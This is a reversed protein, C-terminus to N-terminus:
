HGGASSAAPRGLAGPKRRVEQGGQGVQLRVGTGAARRGGVRRGAAPLEGVAMGARHPFGVRLPLEQAAMRVRREQPRDVNFHDATGVLVYDKSRGYLFYFSSLRFPRVFGEGDAPSPERPARTLVTDALPEKGGAAGAESSAALGTKALQGSSDVGLRRLADKKLVAIGKHFYRAKTGDPLRVLEAMPGQIVFSDNVWGFIKRVKRSDRSETEVLLLRKVQGKPGDNTDPYRCGVQVPQLFSFRVDRLPSRPAAAVHPRVGEANIWVTWPREVISQRQLMAEAPRGLGPPYHIRGNESGLANAATGLAVLCSLHRFLKVPKSVHQNM